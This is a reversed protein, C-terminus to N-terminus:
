LCQFILRLSDFIKFPHALKTRTCVNSLQFLKNFFAKIYIVNANLLFNEIKSRISDSINHWGLIEIKTITSINFSNEFIASIKEDESEPIKNDLYYILINTDILYRKEM